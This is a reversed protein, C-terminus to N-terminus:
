WGRSNDLIPYGDDGIQAARAVQHDPQPDKPPEEALLAVWLLNKAIRAIFRVVPRDPQPSPKPSSSGALWYGVALAAVIAIVTKRNM